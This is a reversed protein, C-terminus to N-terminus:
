KPEDEDWEITFNSNNKTKKDKNKKKTDDKTESTDKKIWGFEKKLINKLNQKEQIFGVVIKEKVGKADYKYEPKDVTGFVTIYISTKGLGDDEVVGFEENEKKAKKAKKSLLESLLIRLRYNIVNDFTHTGSAKINIASSKIDMVPFSIVQNKIEIQNKLTAFKVDSLDEVKIFKALGKMPAYNLLEGNEISLTTMAYIKDYNVKLSPSWVSAFQIDANLKGKINDDKMNNQGFNGCEYFLKTINVNKLSTETSIMLQEPNSGDIIVLSKVSGDLANFLLQNIILQQKRLKIKGSINTANFKNFNLKGISVNLKFDFKESFQLKYSTENSTSEDTLLDDLDINNSKVDADVLLSQNPLFLFSLVNRFYGSVSFDSKSIAGTLDDIIVDNNSFQFNGNIACFNHVNDKLQFNMNEIKMKGSCSSNKFDEFTFKTNKIKSKFSVNMNMKGSITKINEIKLFSQLASLDVDANATLEVEPQSLDKIHLEGKISGTELTASINKLTVENTSLQKQTGNTYDGTFSLNKLSINNEKEIFEANKVGFNVKILPMDNNKFSGNISCDFYFDGKCNYKSVYKRLQYPLEKIFSEVKIDKSKIQLDSTQKNASYEINGEINFEMEGISVNSEKFTYKDGSVDLVMDVTAKKNAFFTLKQEKIYNIQLDGNAYFTYNDNSFKGKLILYEALVAYNQNASQNKYNIQVKDLIIKQLDLSFNNSSTDTSEKWFHYNDSGDAFVRINLEANQAEIRKIRYNQDFLDWISFQLFVKDAKLLNGKSHTKIADKATVDTFTLSAFPFKRILSLDIEGVKIESNLQKNLQEIAYQKVRDEYVYGLLVAIGILFLISAFVILLVRLIRRLVKPLKRKKEILNTDSM